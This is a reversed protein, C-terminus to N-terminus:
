TSVTLVLHRSGAGDLQRDRDVETQLRYRGSKARSLTLVYGFTVQGNPLRQRRAKTKLSTRAYGRYPTTTYQLLTVTKAVRPRVIGYIRTKEGVHVTTKTLHATVLYSLHMTFSRITALHGDEGEFAWRYMGRQTPRLTTHARGTSDTTLTAVLLWPQSTNHSRALLQVQGHAVGAATEADRARVDLRVPRGYSVYANRDAHIRTGDWTQVVPRAEAYPSSTTAYVAITYTWEPFLKLRTTTMAPAAVVQRIDCSSDDSPPDTGRVVCVIVSDTSSSQSSWSVQAWGAYHNFTGTAVSVGSVSPADAYAPVSVLNLLVAVVGAAVSYRLM